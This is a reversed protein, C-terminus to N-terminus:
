KNNSIASNTLYPKLEKFTVLTDRLWMSYKQAGLRNIHINDRFCSDSLSSDNFNEIVRVNNFKSFSNIFAKIKGKNKFGSIYTKHYPARILFFITKPYKEFLQFLSNILIQNPNLDRQNSGTKKISLNLININPVKLTMEYNYGNFTSDSYNGKFASKFYETYNDYYRIGYIDYYPKHLNSAITAEKIYDKSMFPLLPYIFAGWEPFAYDLNIIVPTSPYRDCYNKVLAITPRLPYGDIGYNYANIGMFRPNFSWRARSSGFIPVESQLSDNNFLRNLKGVEGDGSNPVFINTVLFDACLAIVILAFISPFFVKLFYDLPKKKSNNM